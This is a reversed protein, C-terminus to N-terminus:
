WAKRLPLLCVESRMHLRIEKIIEKVDLNGDIFTLSLKGKANEALHKAKWNVRKGQLSNALPTTKCDSFIFNHDILIDIEIDHLPEKWKENVKYKFIYEVISENNSKRSDQSYIFMLPIKDENFSEKLIFYDIM